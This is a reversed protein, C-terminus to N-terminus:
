FLNSKIMDSGGTKIYALLLSLGFGAEVVGFTLLLLFLYPDSTLNTLLVFTIILATLMMTELILLARLYHLKTNFFFLFLMVMLLFLVYPFQLM